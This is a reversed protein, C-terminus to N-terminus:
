AGTLTSGRVVLTTPTREIGRSPSGNLAEFIRKAALRGLLKFNMDVSTLQPRSGAVITDWNDFSVVAVDDPVKVGRERLVDLAGRAILDSACVLGDFEQGSSLLASTAARGWEETWAGYIPSGLLPLDHGGLCQEIGTVRDRAAAYSGDGRIHAIRTRGIDVLHQAATMGADVNDPTISYDEDSQSPAYAYVVPVSIDKGLSPRSDTQAGMVILGDVRRSLLTQLHHAERISDERSDCLLVAMREAGFADEAGMLMPISFRGELDSTILGVTGTSQSSLTRALENPVFDLEKAAERVRDRTASRVGDRDNLAKSATAISVGARAAVDRLTAVPRM